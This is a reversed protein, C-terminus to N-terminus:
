LKWCVSGLSWRRAWFSMCVPVKLPSRRRWDAHKKWIRFRNFILIVSRLCQLLTNNDWFIYLACIVYIQYYNSTVIIKHLLFCSVLGTWVRSSIDFTIPTEDDTHESFSSINTKMASYLVSTVKLLEKVAYGDAQYLKKTNMKIHAKTAQLKQLCLCLCTRPVTNYVM